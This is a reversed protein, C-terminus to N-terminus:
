YQLHLTIDRDFIQIIGIMLPILLLYISLAYINLAETIKNTLITAAEHADNTIYIDYWSTSNIHKM